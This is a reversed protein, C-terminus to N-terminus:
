KGSSGLGNKGRETESLKNVIEAEGLDIIKHPIAQAIRKGLLKSKIAQKIDKKLNDIRCFEDIMVGQDNWYPPYLINRIPFLWEGRYEHDIIGVNGPLIFPTKSFSSRPVIQFYYGETPQVKIGLGVMWLGNEHYKCTCATLDYGEDSPYNKKFTANPHTKIIKNM